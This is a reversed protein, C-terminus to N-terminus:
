EHDRGDYIKVTNRIEVDIFGDMDYILVLYTSKKSSWIGAAGIVTPNDSEVTLDKRIWRDAQTESTFTPPFIQAALLADLLKGKQYFELIGELNKESYASLGLVTVPNDNKTRGVPRLM